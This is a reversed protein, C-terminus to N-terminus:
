ILVHKRLKALHHERLNNFVNIDENTLIFWEGNLNKDKWNLHFQSEMEGHSECIIYSVLEWKFPLKVNFLKLRDHIQITKGIKYGYPSKILYVFGIRRWNTGIEAELSEVTTGSIDNPNVKIIKTVIGDLEEDYVNFEGEWQGQTWIFGMRLLISDTLRM